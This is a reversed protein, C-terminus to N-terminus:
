IGDYEYQQALSRKTQTWGSCKYVHGSHGLGEDSYTVLSPWRTRDILKKMQLMLPKSIHKLKRQDKPVAVMRSLALVGYPVYHNVSKAAGYPPPQWSYAAVLAGDEFVGFAYTATASAAKYAHYCSCLKDVENISISRIDYTPM